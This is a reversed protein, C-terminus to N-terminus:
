HGHSENGSSSRVFQAAPIVFDPLQRRCTTASRGYRSTGLWKRNQLLNEGCIVLRSRKAALAVKQGLVRQRSSYRLGLALGGDLAGKSARWERGSTAATIILGACRKRESGGIQSIYLCIM